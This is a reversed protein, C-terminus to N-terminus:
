GPSTMYMALKGGFRCVLLVSCSRHAAWCAHPMCSSHGRWSMSHTACACRALCGACMPVPALSDSCSMSSAVEAALVRVCCCGPVMSLEAHYATRLALLLHKSWLPMACGQPVLNWAVHICRQGEQTSGFSELVENTDVASNIIHQVKYSDLGFSLAYYIAREASLLAETVEQQFTQLLLLNSQQCLMQVGLVNNDASIQYVAVPHQAM